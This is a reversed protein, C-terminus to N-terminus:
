ISSALRRRVQELNMSAGEVMELTLGSFRANTDLVLSDPRIIEDMVQEDNYDVLSIRAVEPGWSTYVMECDLAFVRRSRLDNPGLSPGAEVFQSLTSRRLSQSVHCDAYACGKVTLDSDCCNYRTEM